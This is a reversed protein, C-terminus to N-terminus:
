PKGSGSIRVNIEINNQAPIQMQRARALDEHSNINDFEAVNDFVVESIQLTDLWDNVRRKGTGLYDLLKPLVNKNYLAITPQRRGGAVAVVVESANLNQAATLRKILNGPLFPTDCPVTMVYDTHASSLAAHLGALPGPWGSILDAIIRRGFHVYAGQTDNANILVEDSDSSVAGLVWDILYRDHLTQLGKDGGIRKGQGGALIVTTVPFHKEVM